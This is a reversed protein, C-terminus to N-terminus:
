SARDATRRIAQAFTEYLEAPLDHGMGPILLLEAGPIAAATARGGSVHVMKDALGHVVLAPVRVSHLRASRNPQTLVALMQRMVGSASVGRDFTEAARNEVQEPSQPYAPSGILRWTRASARVYAERGPSTRALVAPLLSPHQWGVTRKGTTSMISTLSRVRRPQNIAMTQVIMGGMSVGVVHASDLGLHDMLGFADDALDRMSYPARVRRGAFARALTSRTVRGLARSSRGTDRNDYRVVFFGHAALLRCLDPDWWNMPGGLGMVLLLPDADPDGFTQYCLEIGPSVPAFLEESVAVDPMRPSSSTM